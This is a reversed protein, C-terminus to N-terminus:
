PLGKRGRGTLATPKVGGGGTILQTMMAMLSMMLAYALGLATLVVTELSSSGKSSLQSRLRSSFSSSSSRAPVSQRPRHSGSPASAGLAASDLPSSTTTPDARCSGDRAPSKFVLRPPDLAAAASFASSLVAAPHVLPRADSRQFLSQAPLASHAQRGLAVPQSDAGSADAAAPGPTFISPYTVRVTKPATQGPPCDLGRKPSTTRKSTTTMSSSGYGFPSALWEEVAIPDIMPELEIWSLAEAKKGTAAEAMALGTCTSRGGEELGGGGSSSSAGQGSCSGPHAVDSIGSDQLQPPFRATQYTPTLRESLSAHFDQPM